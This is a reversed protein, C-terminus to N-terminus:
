ARAVKKRDLTERLCELARHLRSKVTNLPIDLTHAIENLEMEEGYRLVVVARQWEPLAAVHRRLSESLLADSAETCVSPHFGEPMPVENRNSFKRSHDICRNTTTRRLWHVLHAPSEIKRINKFLDLFIDQAVEEAQATTHLIHRAISYVLVQHEAVLTTFCSRDGNKARVLAYEIDVKSRIAEKM